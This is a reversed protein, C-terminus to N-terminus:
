TLARFDEWGRSQREWASSWRWDQPSLVLGAKVPNNEIYSVIRQFEIQNRAWHDFSEIQWFPQGTLGL